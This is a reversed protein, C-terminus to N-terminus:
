FIVNVSVCMIYIIYISNTYISYVGVCVSYICMLCVHVIYIYLKLIRRGLFNRECSKPVLLMGAITICM